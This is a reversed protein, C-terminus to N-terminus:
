RKSKKKKERRQSGTRKARSKRESRRGAELDVETARSKASKEQENRRYVVFIVAGVIVLAAGGLILKQNSKIPGEEKEGTDTGNTDTGGEGGGGGVISPGVAGGATDPTWDPIDIATVDACEESEIEGCRIKNLEICTADMTRGDGNPNDCDETSYLLLSNPRVTSFDEVNINKKTMDVLFGVSFPVMDPVKLNAKATASLKVAEQLKTVQVKHVSVYKNDGMFALGILSGYDSKVDSVEVNYLQLNSNGSLTMGYAFNGKFIFKSHGKSKWVAPNEMHANEGTVTAKGKPATNHLGNIKVYNVFVDRVQDIRIGTLGKSTHGAVDVAATATFAGDNGDINRCNTNAAFAVNKDLVNATNGDEQFISSYYDKYNADATTPEADEDHWCDDILMRTMELKVRFDNNPSKTQENSGCIADYDYRHGFFDELTLREQLDNDDPDINDSYQITRGEEDGKKLNKVEVDEILLNASRGDSPTTGYIVNNSTATFYIGFVNGKAHGNAAMPMTNKPDKVRQMFDGAPDLIEEIRTNLADLVNDYNVNNRTPPCINAYTGDNGKKARLQQAKRVMELVFGFSSDTQPMFNSNDVLVHQIAVNSATNFHIGAVFFNEVKLHLLAIDKNGNGHIGFHSSLGVTGNTIAVKEGIREIEPYGKFGDPFPFEALDFISAFPNQNFFSEKMKITHTQLDFLVNSALIRVAFVHGHHYPPETDNIEHAPGFDVEVDETLVYCSNNKDITMPEEASSSVQFDNQSLQICTSRDQALLDDLWDKKADKYWTPLPISKEAEDNVCKKVFETNGTHDKFRRENDLNTEGIKEDPIQIYNDVFYNEPCEAAVTAVLFFRM